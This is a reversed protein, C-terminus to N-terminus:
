PTTVPFPVKSVVVSAGAQAAVFSMANLTANYEHDTTILEDGPKLTPALSRLVANIGSTANPQFVIDQPDAHLFAAVRERAVALRGPLETDLFRIPDSEM